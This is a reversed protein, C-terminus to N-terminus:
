DIGPTGGERPGKQVYFVDVNKWQAATSNKNLDLRIWKRLRCDLKLYRLMGVKPIKRITDAGEKWYLILANIIQHCKRDNLFNSMRSVKKLVEDLATSCQFSGDELVKQEGDYLNNKSDLQECVETYNSYERPQLRKGIGSIYIMLDAPLRSEAGEVTKPISVKHFGNRIPAVTSLSNSIESGNSVKATNCYSKWQTAINLSHGM